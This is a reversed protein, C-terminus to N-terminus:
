NGQRQQPIRISAMHPDPDWCLIMFERNGWVSASAKFGRKFNSHQDRLGWLEPPLISVGQILVPFPPPPPPPSSTRLTVRFLMENVPTTFSLTVDLFSIWPTFFQIVHEAGGEGRMRLLLGIQSRKERM